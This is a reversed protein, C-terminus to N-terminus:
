CCRNQRGRHYHTSDTFTFQYVSQNRFLLYVNRLYLTFPLGEQYLCHIPIQHNCPTIFPAGNISNIIDRLFYSYRRPIPPRINRYLLTLSNINLRSSINLWRWLYFIPTNKDIIFFRRESLPSTSLKSSEIGFHVTM